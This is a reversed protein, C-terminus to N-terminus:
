EKGVKKELDLNQKEIKVNLNNLLKELNGDFESNLRIFENIFEADLIELRQKWAPESFIRNPIGGEKNGFRNFIHNRYTLYNNIEGIKSIWIALEEKHNEHYKQVYYIYREKNNEIYQKRKLVIDPRSYYEKIRAKVEPKNCYEKIKAKVEPRQTYERSYQKKKEKIEPRSNYQKLYQRRREKIEPLENHEKKYNLNYIRRKEKVEPRSDYEKKNQKCVDTKRYEKMYLKREEPTM